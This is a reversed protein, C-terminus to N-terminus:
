RCRRVPFAKSSAILFLAGPKSSINGIMSFHRSIVGPLSPRSRGLLRVKSSIVPCRAACDAGVFLRHLMWRHSVQKSSRMSYTPFYLPLVSPAPCSSSSTKLSHKRMLSPPSLLSAVMRSRSECMSSPDTIALRSRLAM